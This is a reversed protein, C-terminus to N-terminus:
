LFGNVETVFGVLVRELDSLTRSIWSPKLVGFTEISDLSILGPVRSTRKLPELAFSCKHNQASNFGVLGAGLDWFTGFESTVEAKSFFQLLMM